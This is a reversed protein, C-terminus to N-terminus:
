KKKWENFKVLAILGNYTNENIIKHIEDVSRKGKVIMDNIDKERINSPWIVINAGSDVIKSMIACIEASRPENDFCFVFKKLTKKNKLLKTLSSGAVAICNNIFMSDIPGEVVVIKESGNIRNMGYILDSNGENITIYRIVNENTGLYRGQYAFVKGARNRFPIVIRPDANKTYTFKNPVIFENVWRCYNNTYYLDKFFEKPIQRNKLYEKASHGDPLDSVKKLQELAIDNPAADCGVVENEIPKSDFSKKQKWSPTNWTQTSNLTEFCYEKYLAENQEKLFFSFQHNQGCNHCKYKLGSKEKNPYLYGRTKLKSKKSDGCYPCRFTATGDRKWKFLELQTSLLAAFKKDTGLTM